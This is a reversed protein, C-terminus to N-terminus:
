AIIANVITMLSFALVPQLPHPTPASTLRPLARTPADGATRLDKLSRWLRDGLLDGVFLTTFTM